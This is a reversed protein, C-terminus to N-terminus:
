RGLDGNSAPDGHLDRSVLHSCLALVHSGEDCGHSFFFASLYLHEPIKVAILASLSGSIMSIISGMVVHTLLMTTDATFEGGETIVTQFAAQHAGFAPWIASLVKESGVSM